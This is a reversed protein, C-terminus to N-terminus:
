DGNGLDDWEVLRSQRAWDLCAHCFALEAL